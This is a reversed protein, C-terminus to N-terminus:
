ITQDGPLEKGKIGSHMVKVYLDRLREIDEVYKSQKDTLEKKSAYIKRESMETNIAMMVLVIEDENLTLYYKKEEM